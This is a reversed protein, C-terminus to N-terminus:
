FNYRICKGKNKINSPINRLAEGQGAAHVGLAHGAGKRLLAGQGDGGRQRGRELQLAVLSEHGDLM